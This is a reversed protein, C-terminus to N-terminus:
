SSLFVLAIVLAMAPTLLALVLGVPLKSGITAKPRHIYASFALVGLLGIGTGTVGTTVFLLYPGPIWLLWDLACLGWLRSIPIEIGFLKGVLRKVPMAVVPVFFATGAAWVISDPIKQALAISPILFLAAISALFMAPTLTLRANAQQQSTLA